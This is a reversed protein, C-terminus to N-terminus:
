HFGVVPHHSCSNRPFTTNAFPWLSGVLWGVSSYHYSFKPMILLWPTQMFQIIVSATHWSKFLQAVIFFASFGACPGRWIYVHLSPTPRTPYSEIIVAPKTISSLLQSSNYSCSILNYSMNKKARRTPTKIKKLHATCKVFRNFIQFRLHRNMFVHVLFPHYKVLSRWLHCISTVGPKTTVDM